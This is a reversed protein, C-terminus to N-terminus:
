GNNGFFFLANPREAASKLAITPEEKGGM